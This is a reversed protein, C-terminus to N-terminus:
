STALLIICSIALQREALNAAGAGSPESASGTSAFGTLAPLM